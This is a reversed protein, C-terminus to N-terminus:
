DEVSNYIEARKNTTQVEIDTSDGQDKDVILFITTVLHRLALHM